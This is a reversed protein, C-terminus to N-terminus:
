NTRLVSSGVGEAGGGDFGFLDGGDRRLEIGAEGLLLDRDDDVEVGSADGGGM